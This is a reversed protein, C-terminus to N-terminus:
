AQLGSGRTQRRRTALFGLFLLGTGLLVLMGPEPVEFRTTNNLQNTSTALLEGEGTNGTFTLEGIDRNTDTRALVNIDNSVLDFFTSGSNVDIFFNEVFDDGAINDYFVNSNLVINGLGAGGSALTAELVRVAGTGDSSTQYDLSFFGDTFFVTDPNQPDGIAQGNFTFDTTLGWSTLGDFSTGWDAPQASFGFGSFLGLSPNVEMVRDGLGYTSLGFSSLLDNNNTVTIDTVNPDSNGFFLSTEGTDGNGISNIEPTVNGGGLDIQIPGAAAPSAMAMGLAATLLLSKYTM